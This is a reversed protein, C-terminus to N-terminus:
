SEGLDVKKMYFIAKSTTKLAVKTLYAFQFEANRTINKTRSTIYNKNEVM